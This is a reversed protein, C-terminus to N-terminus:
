KKGADHTYLASVALHGVPGGLITAVTTMCFAEASSGGSALVSNYTRNAFLGGWLNTAFKAGTSRTRYYSERKARFADKKVEEAYRKKGAPTLTGNANQYRRVGWKQGKIGHHQLHTPYM